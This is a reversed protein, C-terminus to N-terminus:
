EKQKALAKIRDALAVPDIGATAATALTQKALSDIQAAQARVGMAPPPQAVFSGRGRVLTIVGMRELEGLLAAMLYVDTDPRILITEGPEASESDRPNVFYVKAGRKRADAFARAPDAISIFSGHSVRPNAGFVLDSLAKKANAGYPQGHEPADIGALRIKYQTNDADLVTITDGDHVGVVRGTLTAASAPLVLVLLAFTTAQLSAKM